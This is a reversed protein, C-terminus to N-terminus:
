KRKKRPKPMPLELFTASLLDGLFGPQQWLRATILLHPKAGPYPPAEEADPLLERGATTPKVFLQDDCVLAVPKESLYICYEGFMKKATLGPLNVTQLLSDITTQSSAM